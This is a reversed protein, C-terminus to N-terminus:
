EESEVTLHRTQEDRHDFHLHHKPKPLLQEAREPWEVVTIVIPDNIIELLGSTAVDDPSTLRYLDIHAVKRGDPLYHEDVLQFTPSSAETEAQLAKILMATFTTKGAGLNGSLYINDGSNVNKAIEQALKKLAVLSYVKPM